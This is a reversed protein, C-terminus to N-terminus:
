IVGGRMLNHLHVSRYGCVDLVFENSRLQLYSYATEAAKRRAAWRRAWVEIVRRMFPVLVRDREAEYRLLVQGTCVHDPTVVKIM